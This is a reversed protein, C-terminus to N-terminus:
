FPISFWFAKFHSHKSIAVNLNIGGQEIIHVSNSILEFSFLKELILGFGATTTSLLMNADDDADAAADSTASVAELGFCLDNVM